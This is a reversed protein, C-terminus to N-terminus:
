NTRKANKKKREKPKKFILIYEHNFVYFGGLLARYRWIAKQNQKGKTESINKVIVSKLIFNKRLMLQIIHSSLPIWESDKYIDGIVIGLYREDELYKTTNNIVKEFSKLFEELTHTNALNGECNNFKIIDWYPPHYLIMNVKDINYKNLYKELKIKSSDGNIFELKSNGKESTAREKAVELINNDIDIGIGNRGLKQCEILTTGSGLFADLVWEGKKTYRNILQYPIQPIFNGHYDGKHTGSNDRKNIIWLSDTIIDDYDKWNDMDFDNIKKKAM